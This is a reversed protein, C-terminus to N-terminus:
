EMQFFISVLPTVKSCSASITPKRTMVPVHRFTVVREAEDVLFVVGDGAM